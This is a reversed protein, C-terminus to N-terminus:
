YIQNEPNAGIRRTRIIFILLITILSPQLRLLSSPKPPKSALNYKKQNLDDSGWVDGRRHWTTKMWTFLVNNTKSTPNNNANGGFNMDGITESNKHDKRNLKDIQKHKEYTKALVVRQLFTNGETITRNQKDREFMGRKNKFIAPKTPSVIIIPTTPPKSNTSPPQNNNNNTKRRTIKQINNNKNRTKNHSMDKKKICESNYGWKWKKSQSNPSCVLFNFQFSGGGGGGGFFFFCYLFYDSSFSIFLFFLFLSFVVSVFLFYLYRLVACCFFTFIHLVHFSLPSIKGVFWLKLGCGVECDPTLFRKYMLPHNNQMVCRQMKWASTGLVKM